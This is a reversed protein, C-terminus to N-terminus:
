KDIGLAAANQTTSISLNESKKKRLNKKNNQNKKKEKEVTAKHKQTKLHNNYTAETAFSKRCLTCQFQKNLSDVSSNNSISSLSSKTSSTLTNTSENLSLNSLSVNSKRIPSLSNLSNCLIKDSVSKSFNPKFLEYRNELQYYPELRTPQGFINMEKFKEQTISYPIFQYISPDPLFDLEM